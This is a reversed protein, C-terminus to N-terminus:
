ARSRALLKKKKWWIEPHFMSFPITRTWSWLDLIRSTENSFGENKQWSFNNVCAHLSIQRGANELSLFFFDSFNSLSESGDMWTTSFTVATIAEEAGVLKKKSGSM